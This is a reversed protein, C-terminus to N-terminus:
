QFEIFEPHYGLRQAAELMEMNKKMRVKIHFDPKAAYYEQAKPFNGVLEYCMGLAVSLEPIQEAQYLKRALKGAEMYEGEQLLSKLSKYDERLAKDKIKVSPLNLLATKRDVFFRYGGIASRTEDELQKVLQDVKFYSKGPKLVSEKRLHLTDSVAPSGDTYSFNLIVMLDAYNTKESTFYPITPSGASVSERYVTEHADTGYSYVYSGSILVAAESETEVPCCWSRVLWSIQPDDVQQRWYRDIMQELLPDPTDGANEFSQLFYASSKFPSNQLKEADLSYSTMRIQGPACLAPVSLMLLFLLRKM